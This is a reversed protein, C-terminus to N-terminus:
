AEGARGERDTWDQWVTRATERSLDFNFGRSALFATLKNEFTRRPQPDGRVTSYLRAAKKRAAALAADSENVSELAERADPDAVGLKRLEMRLARVSRPRFEQRNDVWQRAFDRDDMLGREALRELVEQTEGDATKRGRLYRELEARSRPRRAILAVCQRFVSEVRDRGILREIAEEELTQGSHLEAALALSLSFSDTGAMEVAVKRGGRRLRLAVVKGPM